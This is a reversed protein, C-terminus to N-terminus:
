QQLLAMVTAILGVAGILYGWGQNLGGRAGAGSDRSKKLDAIDNVVSIHAANYAEQTLFKNERDDMAQRWENSAARWREVEREYKDTAKEASALAAEVAKEQALFRQNTAEELDEIVREFYMKLVDPTWASVDKATEGGGGAAVM